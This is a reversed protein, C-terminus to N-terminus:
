SFRRVADADNKFIVTALAKTDKANFDVAVLGTPLSTVKVVSAVDAPLQKEIDGATNIWGILYTVKKM